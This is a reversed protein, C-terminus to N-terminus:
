WRSSPSAGSTTSSRPWWCTTPVRGRNTSWPTATSGPSCASSRSPGTAARAGRHGLAGGRHGAGVPPVQDSQGPVPPLGRGRRRRNRCRHPGRSRHPRVGPPACRELHGGHRGPHAPGRPVGRDPPRVGRPPPRLRPGRARGPADHRRRGGRDDVPQHQPRHGGRHPLRARRAGGALGPRRRLRDGGLGPGPHRAQGQPAPAHVRQTRRRHHAPGRFQGVGRHRRTRRGGQRHPLVPRRRGGLLVVEGRHHPLDGRRRHARGSLRQRGRRQWGAGRHPVPVRPQRHRVGPRGPRPPVPGARLSRGGSPPRPGSRHHLDRPLGTRGRGGPVAPLAAHGARLRKGAPRLPGGARQGVGCHRRRRLLPRVRRDRDEERHRRLPGAGSPAPAARLSPGGTRGGGGGTPRLGLGPDGSGGATRPEPGPRPDGAPGPRLRVPRGSLLGALRRSGVTGIRHGHGMIAGSSRSRPSASSRSSWRVAGDGGSVTPRVPRTPTDPPLITSVSPAPAPGRRDDAM